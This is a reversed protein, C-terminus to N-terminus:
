ARNTATQTRKTKKFAFEELTWWHIAPLNSVCWIDASHIKIDFGKGGESTTTPCRITCLALSGAIILISFDIQQYM